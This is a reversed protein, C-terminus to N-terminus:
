TLVQIHLHASWEEFSRLAFQSLPHSRYDLVARLKLGIELIVSVGDLLAEGSALSMAARSAWM